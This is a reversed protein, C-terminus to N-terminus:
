LAWFVPFVCLVRMKVELGTHVNLDLHFAMAHSHRTRYPLTENMELFIAHSRVTKLIQNSFSLM